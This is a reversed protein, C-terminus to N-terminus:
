LRGAYKLRLRKEICKMTEANGKPVSKVGKKLNSVLAASSLQLLKKVLFDPLSSLAEDFSAVTSVTYDSRGIKIEAAFTRLKVWEGRVRGFKVMEEATPGQALVVISSQSDLRDVAMLRLLITRDTLFPAKYSILVQKELEHAVEVERSEVCFPLLEKYGAPNAMM